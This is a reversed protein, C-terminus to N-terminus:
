IPLDVVTLVNGSIVQDKIGIFSYGLRIVDAPYLEIETIINETLDIEITIETAM